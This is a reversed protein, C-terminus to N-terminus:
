IGHAGRLGVPYYPADSGELHPKVRRARTKAHHLAARGLDTLHRHGDLLGLHEGVRLLNQLKFITLGLERVLWEDTRPPRTLAALILLLLRANPTDALFGEKLRPHRLRETVVTFEPEPRYGALIEAQAFTLHRHESPFFGDWPKNPKPGKGNRFIQPLNNPLTHGMIFLGESCKYGLAMSNNRAYRVCLDRIAEREEETWTASAFDLGFEVWHLDDVLRHDRLRERATTSCGYAAILFRILHFSRWSRITSNAWWRDLYAVISDGSGLYDDVLIITRSKGDRLECQPALASVQRKGKHTQVVESIINAALHESGDTPGYPRDPAPEVYDPEKPPPRVPYLGVPEFTTDQWIVDTLLQKLGARFTDESVIHLSDLLMAATPVDDPLFNSLWRRGDDTDSLRAPTV